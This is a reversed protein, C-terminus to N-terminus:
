SEHGHVRWVSENQSAHRHFRLRLLVTGGAECAVHSGQFYLIALLGDLVPVRRETKRKKTLTLVGVVFLDGKWGLQKTRLGKAPNLTM